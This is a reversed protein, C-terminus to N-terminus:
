YYMDEEALLWPLLLLWAHTESLRYSAQFRTWPQCWTPQTQLDCAALLCRPASLTWALTTKCAKWLQKGRSWAPCRDALLTWINSINMQNNISPTNTDFRTRAIRWKGIYAAAVFCSSQPAMKTSHHDHKHGGLGSRRCTGFRRRYCYWCQRGHRRTYEDGNLVNLPMFDWAFIARNKAPIVNWTFIYWRPQGSLATWKMHPEIIRCAYHGQLTSSTNWQILDKM